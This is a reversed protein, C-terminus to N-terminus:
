KIHLNKTFYGQIELFECTAKLSDKSGMFNGIKSGIHM